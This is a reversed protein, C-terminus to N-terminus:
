LKPRIWTKNIWTKDLHKDEYSRGEDEKWAPMNREPVIYAGSAEGTDAGAAFKQHGLQISANFFHGHNEHTDHSKITIEHVIFPIYLNKM